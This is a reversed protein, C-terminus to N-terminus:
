RWCDKLWAAHDDVEVGPVAARLRQALGRVDIRGGSMTVDIMAPVPLDASLAGTGLWPELLSAMQERKLPEAKGIGPTAHLM